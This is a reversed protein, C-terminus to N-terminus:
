IQLHQHQANLTHIAHKNWITISQIITKSKNEEITKENAM